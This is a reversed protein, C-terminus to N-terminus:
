SQKAHGKAKGKSAKRELVGCAIPAGGTPGAHVNVYYGTESDWNFTTSKGKASANGDENATLVGYTFRTDIAGQAAGPECPDAAADPRVHVHWAYSAGPTLGKVHITVFNNKKGDVLHAKGKPTTVATDATVPALTTRYTKAGKGAAVATAAIALAAVLAVSLIRKM